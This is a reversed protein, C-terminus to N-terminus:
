TTALTIHVFRQLLNARDVQAQAYLERPIAQLGALLIITVFPTTKWADALVLAWFAGAGTGLWNIPDAAIGLKLCLFNAFGYHYYYILQWTRASIAAPIAWPILVCARFLGRMPLRESLVLAFALGLLM